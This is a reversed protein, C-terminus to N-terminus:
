IRSRFGPLEFDQAAHALVHATEEELFPMAIEAEYEVEGKKEPGYKEIPIPKEWPDSSIICLVHRIEFYGSKCPRVSVEKQETNRRCHFSPFNAM